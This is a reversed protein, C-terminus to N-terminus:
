GGGVWCVVPIAVVMKWCRLVRVYGGGLCREGFTLRVECCKYSGSSTICSQIVLVM